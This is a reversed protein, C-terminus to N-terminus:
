GQESVATRGGNRSDARAAAIAARMDMSAQLDAARSGDIAARLNKAARRLSLFAEYDFFLLM